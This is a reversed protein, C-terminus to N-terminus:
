EECIALMSTDRQLLAGRLLFLLPLTILPLAETRDDGQVLDSLEGALSILVANCSLSATMWFRLTCNPSPFSGLGEPVGRSSDSLGAASCLSWLNFTSASFLRIAILFKFNASSLNSM